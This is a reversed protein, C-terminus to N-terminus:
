PVRAAGRQCHHLPHKNIQVVRGVAAPDSNFHNRWYAYSLVIYPLSNKGHEDSAHIFRGLYPQVGLSDFYNGSILYPWVVSPRVTGKASLTSCCSCTKRTRFM